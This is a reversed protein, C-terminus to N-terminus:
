AGEEDGAGPAMGAEPFDAQLVTGAPRGPRLVFRGGFAEVREAMGLLGFDEPQLLRALFITTVFVALQRGMQSMLAWGIGRAIASM